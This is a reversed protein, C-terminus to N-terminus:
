APWLGECQHACSLVRAEKVLLREKPSMQWVLSESCATIDFHTVLDPLGTCAWRAARTKDCALAHKLAYRGGDVTVEVNLRADRQRQKPALLLVGGAGVAEPAVDVHEQQAVGASGLGLEELVDLLNRLARHVRCARM